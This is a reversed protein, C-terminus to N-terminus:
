QPCANSSGACTSCTYGLYLDDSPSALYDDCATGSLTITTHSTDTYSWGSDDTSSVQPITAGGMYLQLTAKAPPAFFSDLTCGTRSVAVVFDNVNSNLDKMNSPTYLTSAGPPPTLLSGTNSIGVLCSRGSLSYGVSIVVIRARLYGLDTAASKASTCPDRSDSDPSCAPESATVLLIYHDDPRLPSSKSKWYDSSVYDSARELAASSASLYGSSQCFAGSPDGCQMARQVQPEAMPQPEVVVSGACCSDWQCDASEKDNQDPPFQEFGFKVAGQYTGIAGLLASQAAALRTASGPFAAQMASSRDLLILIQAARPWYTIHGHFEGCYADNTPGAAVDKGSSLDPGADDTVDHIMFQNTCASLGLALGLLAARRLM